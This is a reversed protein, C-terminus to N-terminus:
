PFESGRLIRPYLLLACSFIRFSSPTEKKLIGMASASSEQGSGTVFIEDWHKVDDPSDQNIVGDWDLLLVKRPNFLEKPMKNQWPLLRTM